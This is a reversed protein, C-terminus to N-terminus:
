FSRNFNKFREEVLSWNCEDQSIVILITLAEPEDGLSFTRGFM